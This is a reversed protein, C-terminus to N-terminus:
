IFHSMAWRGINTDSFVLTIVREHPILIDATYEKTEDCFVRTVSLCVSLRVSPCVSLIVIRLVASAYSSLATFIYFCQRGAMEITVTKVYAASRTALSIFLMPSVTVM